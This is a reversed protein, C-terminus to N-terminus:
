RPGWAGPGFQPGPPTAIRSALPAWVAQFFQQGRNQWDQYAVIALIVAVPFFVLWAVIFIILGNMDFDPSLKVDVFFGDQMPLVGVSVKPVMAYSAASGKGSWQAPGTQALQIGQAWLAGQLAAIVSQVDQGAFYQRQNQDIM